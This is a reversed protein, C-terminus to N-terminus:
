IWSWDHRWDAIKELGLTQILFWLRLARAPRTMEISMNWFDPQTERLSGAVDIYEANIAFSRLLCRRDKVICMGMGYSSFLWKHADWAVRDALQIGSVLARHSKLLVVSAGYAGDVHMWLGFIDALRAIEGLPDISDTNTTRCTAVVLFPSLNCRLDTETCMKLAKVDM